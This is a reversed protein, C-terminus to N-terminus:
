CREELATQPTPGRGAMQVSIWPSLNDGPHAGGGGGWVQCLAGGRGGWEGASVEVSLREGGNYGEDWSGRRATQEEKM